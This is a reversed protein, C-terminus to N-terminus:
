ICRRKDGLKIDGTQNHILHFSKAKENTVTCVKHPHLPKPVHVHPVHQGRNNVLHFAAPQHHLVFFSVGMMAKRECFSIFNGKIWFYSTYSLVPFMLSSMYFWFSLTWGQSHSLTLWQVTMCKDDGVGVGWLSDRIDRQNIPQYLECFRMNVFRISERRSNLETVWHDPWLPWCIMM